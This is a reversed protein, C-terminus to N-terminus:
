KFLYDRCSFLPSKFYCSLAAEGIQSNFHCSLSPVQLLLKFRHNRSSFFPSKFCCSLAAEGIQSNLQCSLGPLQLLLKFLHNRCISYIFQISAAQFLSKFNHSSHRSSAIAETLSISHHGLSVVELLSNTCCGRVM